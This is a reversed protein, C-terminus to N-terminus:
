LVPFDDPETELRCIEFLLRELNFFWPAVLILALHSSLSTTLVYIWFESVNFYDSGTAVTLAVLLVFNMCHALLIPHYNHEVRFRIRFFFILAGFCLFLATFFGFAVPMSADVWLGTLLTCVFYSRHRLYLAPLALMPGLLFLYVPWSGMASNVLLMLHLLLVNAGFLILIRPDLPM